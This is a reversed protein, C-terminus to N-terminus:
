LREQILEGVREREEWHDPEDSCHAAHELQKYAVCLHFLSEDEALEDRRELSIYDDNLTLVVRRLTELDTM